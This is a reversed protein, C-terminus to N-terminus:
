HPAPLLLFARLPTSQRLLPFTRFPMSLMTRSFANKEEQDPLIRKQRFDLRLAANGFAGLFSAVFFSRVKGAPRLINRFPQQVSFFAEAQAEEVTPLPISLSHRYPRNRGTGDHAGPRGGM